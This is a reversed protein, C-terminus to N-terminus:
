LIKHNKSFLHFLIIELNDTKHLGLGRLGERIKELSRFLLNRVSQVNMGLVEALEPFDLNNYFRLFIVERQRATLSQISAALKENFEVRDESEIIFDETSIIFGNIKMGEDLLESKANKLTRILERRLTVLLYAKINKVIGLTARRGWLQVFMEQIVDKVIDSVPIIKLGYYYLERFYHQFIIGLADQSGSKFKRWLGAEDFGIEKVIKM